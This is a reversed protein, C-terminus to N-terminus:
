SGAKVDIDLLEAAYMCFDSADECARLGGRLQEIIKLLEEKSLDEFKKM